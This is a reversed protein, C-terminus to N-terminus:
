LFGFSLEQEQQGERFAVILPFARAAVTTPYWPREKAAIIFLGEDNGMATFHDARPQKAFFPVQYAQSIREALAPVDDTVMGIESICCISSGSFPQDSSLQLDYRVIYELINGNNDYFYFAKANWNSFDAVTEGGPLPILTTKRLLQERAEELKNGPITFAFHYVPGADESQRFVLETSGARFSLENDDSHLLQLGPVGTYFAETAALADTLLVIRSINMYANILPVFTSVKAQKLCKKQNYRYRHRIKVKNQREHM